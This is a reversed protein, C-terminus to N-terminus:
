ISNGYIGRKLNKSISNLHEEAIVERLKIYKDFEKDNKITWFKEKFWDGFNFISLQLNNEKLYDKYEKKLKKM